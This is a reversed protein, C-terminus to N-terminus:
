GDNDRSTQLRPGHHAYHAHAFKGRPQSIVGLVRYHTARVNPKVVQRVLFMRLVREDKLLNNETCGLRSTILLSARSRAMEVHLRAYPLV